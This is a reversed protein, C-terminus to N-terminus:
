AHISPRPPSSYGTPLAGPEVERSPRSAPEDAAHTEAAFVVAARGSKSSVNAEGDYLSGRVLVDIKEGLRVQGAM